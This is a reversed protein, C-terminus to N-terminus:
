PKLRHKVLSNTKWSSVRVPKVRFEGTYCVWLCFRTAINQKGCPTELIFTSEVKRLAAVVNELSTCHQLIVGAIQKVSNPLWQGFFNNTHGGEYSRSLFFCTVCYSDCFKVRLSLVETAVLNCSVNGLTVVGRATNMTYSISSITNTM